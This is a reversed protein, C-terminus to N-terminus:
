DYESLQDVILRMRQNVSENVIWYREDTRCSSIHNLSKHDLNEPLTACKYSDTIQKKVTDM